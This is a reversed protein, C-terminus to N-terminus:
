LSGPRKSLKRDKFFKDTPDFVAHRLHGNHGLFTIKKLFMKNITYM